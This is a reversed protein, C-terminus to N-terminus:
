PRNIPHRDAQGTCHANRHNNQSNTDYGDKHKGNYKYSGDEARAIDYENFKWAEKVAERDCYYNDTKTLMFFTNTPMLRGGPVKVYFTAATRYAKRAAPVIKM